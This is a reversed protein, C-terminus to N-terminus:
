MFDCLATGQDIDIEVSLKIPSGDDMYDVATLTNKGTIELSRRGIERLMNRVALEANSQIHGMYAQVVHLGYQDILENVM